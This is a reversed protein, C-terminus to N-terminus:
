STAVQEGKTMAPSKKKNKKIIEGDTTVIELPTDGRKVMSKFGSKAVDADKYEWLQRHKNTAYKKWVVVVNQFSKALKKAHVRARGFGISKSKTDAHVKSRGRMVSFKWIKGDLWFVVKVGGQKINHKENKSPM